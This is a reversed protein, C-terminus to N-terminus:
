HDTCKDELEYLDKFKKFFLQYIKVTDLYEKKEIYEDNTHDLKADGPGFTICQFHPKIDKYHAQFHNTFTTGTKFLMPVKKKTIKHASWRLANVLACRSPVNCADIVCMFEYDIKTNPNVLESKVIDIVAKVKKVVSKSDIWTPIRIDLIAECSEPLVNGIEGAHLKTLAISMENYHGKLNNYESNMIDIFSQIRDKIGTVIIEILNDFGWVQASHGAKTKAKIKVWVQGRYGLCIRHNHTPEAFIAYDPCLEKMSLMENLGILDDEEHVMGAVILTFNLNDSPYKAASYLISALPSKSDVAGTAYLNNKDERFPNDTPVTDMHGALLLVPKGNGKIGIANGVKSEILKFGNKKLFNKIYNSIETENGSVSDIKLLDRLFNLAEEEHLYTQELIDM